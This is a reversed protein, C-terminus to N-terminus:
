SQSKEGIRPLKGYKDFAVRIEPLEGGDIGHEYRLALGLNVHRKTVFLNKGDTDCPYTAAKILRGLMTERVFQELTHEDKVESSNANTLAQTLM